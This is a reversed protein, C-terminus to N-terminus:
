INAAPSRDQPQPRSTRRTSTFRGAIAAIKRYMRWGLLAASLLRPWSRDRGMLLPGAMSLLPLVKFFSAKRAKLGCLRLAQFELKLTERYVESEAVLAKRKAELENM